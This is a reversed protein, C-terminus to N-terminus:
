YDILAGLLNMTYLRSTFDNVHNIGNGTVDMYKKVKLMSMSQTFMDLTYVNDVTKALDDMRKWYTALTNQDYSIGNPTFAKIIVFECDPNAGQVELILANINDMFAIPSYSSGLDNIGFHIFVVDPNAAKIKNVQPADCGWLSTKGGVAQNSLNITGTYKEQLGKQLQTAWNDMYPERKMHGSSSCGEAVSDGTVVINVDEGNKLKEKLKPMGSKEYSAFEDLKLDRVDYVYSVSVQNGYLLPSETYITGAMMMYDTLVNSISDVRKYPAPIENGKLNETTLYPLNSGRKATLVNGSFSYDEPSYETKLSFDRVSLIKVPAYQLKGSINTGDDELLVTENYIVNGLYYPTVMEKFGFEYKAQEPDVYNVFNDTINGEEKGSNSPSGGCATASFAMVFSLLACLNGKTKIMKLM